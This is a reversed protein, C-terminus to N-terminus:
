YIQMYEYDTMPTQLYMNNIYICAFRAYKTSLVSNWLIKSTTLDATTTSLYGPVNLLNGGVTLRVCNPDSKQPRYDVVIRAYTVTKDSPIDHIEDHSVFFFTNTVEVLGKYVQSLTVLEKCM